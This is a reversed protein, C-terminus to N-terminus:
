ASVPGHCQGKEIQREDSDELQESEVARVTRSRQLGRETIVTFRGPIEPPEPLRLIRCLESDSMPFNVASSPWGQQTIPGCGITITDSQHGFLDGGPGAHILQLAVTGTRRMAFASSALMLSVGTVISRTEEVKDVTGINGVRVNVNNGV